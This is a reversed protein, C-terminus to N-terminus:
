LLARGVLVLRFSFPLRSSPRQEMDLPRDARIEVPWQEVVVRAVRPNKEFEKVLKRFDDMMARYSLEKDMVGELVVKPVPSSSTSLAEESGETELASSQLSTTDNEPGGEEDRTSEDEPVGQLRFGVKRLHVGEHALLRSGVFAFWDFPRVGLKALLAETRVADEMAFGSADFRAHAQQLAELKQRDAASRETLQSLTQQELQMRDLTYGWFLSGGVVLGVSGALLAQRARYHYHVIRDAPATYGPLNWSTATLMAFLADAAASEEVDRFGLASSLAALDYGHLEVKDAPDIQRSVREILEKSGLLCAHLVRDYPLKANSALFQRMRQMEWLIQEAYGGESLQSTPALRSQRLRGKVLYSQRIGGGGGHSVFLLHEQKLRLVRYMRRALQAVSTIVELPSCHHHLIELWPQVTDKGIIGSFLYLDDRRGSKERGQRESHVWPNNGFRQSRRRAVVKKKDLSFLHPISELYFEEEIIDLVLRNTIEPAMGLDRRFADRGDPGADYVQKGLLRKGKVLFVTLSQDTLHLIRKM